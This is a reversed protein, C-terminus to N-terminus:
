QWVYVHPKEKVIASPDSTLLVENAQYIACEPDDVFIFQGRHKPWYAVELPEGRQRIREDLWTGRVWAHVTRHGTDLFRERGRQVVVFVAGGLLVVNQHDIVKGTKFDRISYLRRTRNWYVEVM